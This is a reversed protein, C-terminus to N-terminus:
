GKWEAVMLWLNSGAPRQGGKFEFRPDALEFVKAWDDLEREHSNQLETMCLDMSRLRNEQWRSLVGPQPLVNDNLVVKAGPKLAPILGRLIKVCYKDSWNHLIWRFFYVDAGKVPQDEALFDHTMFRVRDALDVPAEKEAAQIVPELDQVVFSLAPFQRAIAFCAFGQSGGVDVVTGNRLEGWPFNDAVHSLEFGTGETFSRMANGFRRAREPFTENPEQSGPYKELASCTQAAGQWLDDNSAGVWDHIVPDEALLRSVANHAVVGPRPEVFIDKIIAHRIIQRVNVEPLGTTAAIDAFSAETGPAFAHALRFRAIAQQSLLENHTYSMLYERPGLVLRRLEETDDIVAARAAETETETKPVLTDKPGDIDFSPTPLGHAALYTQLKETNAAIRKALEVIRPEPSAM